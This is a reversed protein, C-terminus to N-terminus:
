EPIQATLAPCQEQSPDNASLDFFFFINTCELVSPFYDTIQEGM